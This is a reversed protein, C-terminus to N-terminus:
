PERCVVPYPPRPPPDSPVSPIYECVIVDHCLGCRSSPACVSLPAKFFFSAPCGRPAPKATPVGVSIRDALAEQRHKKANVRIEIATARRHRHKRHADAPAAVVAFTLVAAFVIALPRMAM